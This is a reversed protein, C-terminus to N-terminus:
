YLCVCVCVCAYIVGCDLYGSADLECVAACKLSESSINTLCDASQSSSLHSANESLFPVSTPKLPMAANDAVGVFECFLTVSVAERHLQYPLKLLERFFKVFCLLLFRLAEGYMAAISLSFCIEVYKSISEFVNEDDFISPQL